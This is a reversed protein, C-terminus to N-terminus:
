IQDHFCCDFNQQDSRFSYADSAFFAISNFFMQHFRKKVTISQVDIEFISDTEHIETKSNNRIDNVRKNLHFSTIYTFRIRFLQLHTLSRDRM